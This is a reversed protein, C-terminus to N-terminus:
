HLYIQLFSLWEASLSSGGEGGGGVEWGRVYTMQIRSQKSIRCVSPPRQLTHSRGNEGRAGIFMAELYLFRSCSLSLIGQQEAIFDGALEFYPFSRVSGKWHLKMKWPNNSSALM